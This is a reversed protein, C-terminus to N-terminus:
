ETRDTRRWLYRMWKGHIRSFRGFKIWFREKETYVTGRTARERNKQFKSAGFVSPGIPEGCTRIEDM